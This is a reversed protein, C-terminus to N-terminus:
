VWSLQKHCRLCRTCKKCLVSPLIETYFLKHSDCRCGKVMFSTSPICHCNQWRHEPSKTTADIRCMHIGKALTWLPTSMALCQGPEMFKKDLGQSIETAWEIIGQCSSAHGIKHLLRKRETTMSPHQLLIHAEYATVAASRTRLEQEAAWFRVQCDEMYTGTSGLGLSHFDAGLVCPSDVGALHSHEPVSLNDSESESEPEEEVHASSLM